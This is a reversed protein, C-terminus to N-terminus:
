EVVIEDMFIFSEGGAAHHWSPLLGTSEAVVKLYRTNLKDFNAMFTHTFQGKADMPIEHNITKLLMYNNGDTSSYVAISSPLVIWSYSNQMCDMSISQVPMIKKLDIEIDVNQGQFGQWRGDAFNNSGKIGDLLAMEGGAAYAPNYSSYKSNLKALNGIGKHLFILKQTIGFPQGNVLVSANILTKSSIPLPSTYIRSSAVPETGDTTYVIVQDNFLTRLTVM